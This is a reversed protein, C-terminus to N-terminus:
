PKPLSPQHKVSSDFIDYTDVDYSEGHEDKITVNHLIICVHMIV